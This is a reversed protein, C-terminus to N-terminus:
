TTIDSIIKKSFIQTANSKKSAFKSCNALNLVYLKKISIKMFINDFQIPQKAIAFILDIVVHGLEDGFTEIFGVFRECAEGECVCIAQLSFFFAFFNWCRLAEGGRFWEM